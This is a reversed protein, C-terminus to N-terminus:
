TTKKQIRAVLLVTRFFDTNKSVLFFSLSLIDDISITTLWDHTDATEHLPGLFRGRKIWM